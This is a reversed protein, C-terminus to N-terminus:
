ALLWMEFSPSSEPSFGAIFEGRYLAVAAKLTERCHSCLPLGQGCHVQYGTLFGDFTSVDIWHPGAPDLQIDHVSVLLQPDPNTIDGIASRLRFITQRLNARAAADPQDPWLLPGLAQRRHPRGTEVALHALLARVKDTAFHIPWGDLTAQFTGFLTINLQAM